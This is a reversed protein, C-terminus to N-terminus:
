KTNRLHYPGKAQEYAYGTRYLTAESFPAGILQMGIPMGEKNEGCPVSLAP